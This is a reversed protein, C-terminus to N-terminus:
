KKLVTYTFESKNVKYKCLNKTDNDGQLHCINPLIHLLSQIYLYSTIKCMKYANPTYLQTFHCHM